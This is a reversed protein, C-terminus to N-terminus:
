KNEIPEWEFGKNGQQKRYTGVYFMHKGQTKQLNGRWVKIEMANEILNWRLVQTKM